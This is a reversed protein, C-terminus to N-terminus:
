VKKLKLARLPENLKSGFNLNMDPLSSNDMECEIIQCDFGIKEAPKIIRFILSEVSYFRAFHGDNNGGPISATKDIVVESKKDFRKNSNEINWCEIYRDAVFLPIIVLMGNLKLIRYAERIFDVDKNEQFHEFAHHCAIKDISQDEIHISSIDGGVVKVGDDLETVGQYIHDTLYLNSASTNKQVANLYRSKGGAADMVVDNINIELIKYSFFFELGKKHIYYTVFEGLGGNKLWKEIENISVNLKAKNLSLLQNYCTPKIYNDIIVNWRKMKVLSKLKRFLKLVITVKKKLMKTHSVNAFKKLYDSLTM